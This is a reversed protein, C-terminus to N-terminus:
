FTSRINSRRKPLKKEYSKLIRCPKRSDRVRQRASGNLCCGKQVCGWKELKGWLKEVRKQTWRNADIYHCDVYHCGSVVVMPAGNRFASLIFEEHVRGSCMTRILRQNSPYQLRAGGCTDAGAYSCWNCAFVIVKDQPDETLHADIQTIIQDDTFHKMSLAGFRCEAACTGCGKCLAEVYTITKNKPDVTFANYPCVKSCM